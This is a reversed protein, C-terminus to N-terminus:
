NLLRSRGDGRGGGDAVAESAPNSSPPAALLWGSVASLPPDLGCSGTEYIRLLCYNDFQLHLRKISYIKCTHKSQGRGDAGAATKAQVWRQEHSSPQCCLWAWTRPQTSRHDNRPPRRTRMALSLLWCFSGPSSAFLFPTWSSLDRCCQVM